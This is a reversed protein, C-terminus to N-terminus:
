LKKLTLADRPGHLLKERLEEDVCDGVCFNSFQNEVQSDWLIADM